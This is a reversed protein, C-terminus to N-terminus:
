LSWSVQEVSCKDNRACRGSATPGGTRNKEHDSFDEHDNEQYYEEDVEEDLQGELGFLERADVLVKLLAIEAYLDQLKKDMPASM